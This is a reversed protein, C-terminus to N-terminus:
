AQNILVKQNLGKAANISFCCRLTCPAVRLCPQQTCPMIHSLLVLFCTSVDNFEILGWALLSASFAAPFNLKLFDALLMLMRTSMHCWHVFAGPKLM